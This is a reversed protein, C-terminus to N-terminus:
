NHIVALQGSCDRHPPANTDNPAGPTAGRTHGMGTTAARDPGTGGQEVGTEDALAKELNALKGAKREIGVPLGRKRVVAIGSSDYGRYELRRLGEVAVEVASRHGVYGIIGCM